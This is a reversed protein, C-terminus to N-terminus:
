RNSLEVNPFNKRYYILELAVFDNSISKLLLIKNLKLNNMEEKYLIFYLINFKPKLTIHKKLNANLRESM